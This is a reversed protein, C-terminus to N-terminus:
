TLLSQGKRTCINEDGGGGGGGGGDDRKRKGGKKKWFKTNIDEVMNFIEESSLTKPPDNLEQKGNFVKKLKRFPHHDM